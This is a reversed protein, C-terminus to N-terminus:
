GPKQAIMVNRVYIRDFGYVKEWYRLLVGWMVQLPLDIGKLALEIPKPRKRAHRAANLEGRMLADLAQRGTVHREASVVTFGAQEAVRSLGNLSFRRFDYPAEHEGWMFPTTLVLQGGPRLVRFMEALLHAPEIAHELVEICLVLGFESAQFPINLGDFFVDPKKNEATRGSAEVDIGTYPRGGFLPRYPQTGCGVDLVRDAAQLQDRAREIAKAIIPQYAM